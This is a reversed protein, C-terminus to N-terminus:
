IVWDHASSPVDRGMAELFRSLRDYASKPDVTAPADGRRGHAVWNRYRRVQNVQEVLDADLGKHLELVWFFGGEKISQIAEQAARELAPHRRSMGAATVEALVRDRVLGEFVSFLVLVALDDFPALGLDAGRVLDADDLSRFRDDRGLRGDWPLDDWYHSALRRLLGLLRKVDQYWTWADEMDNM